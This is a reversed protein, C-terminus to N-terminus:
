IKRKVNNCIKNKSLYILQENCFKFFENKNISYIIYSEKKHTKENIRRDRLIAEKTMGIGEVITSMNKNNEYFSCEVLEIHKKIFLFKLIQALGEKMFTNDLYKYSMNWTINCMKNKRSYNTVRISGVLEKNMKDEVAWIPEDTYYENIASKIIMRAKEISHNSLYETSNSSDEIEDKQSLNFFVDRADKMQFRRVIVKNTKFCKVM